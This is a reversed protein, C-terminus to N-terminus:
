QTPQRYFSFSLLVSILFGATGSNLVHGSTLSLLIVLMVTFITYKTYACNNHLSKYISLLLLGYCLIVSIVGYAMLFDIIDIEVLKDGTIYKFWTIGRGCLMDLISYNNLYAKIAEEAWVNRQSFLLTIIDFKNFFFYIRDMINTLHLVYYILAVCCVSLIAYITVSYKLLKRSIYPYKLTSLLKLSPYSVFILFSSLISVKSTILASMALMAMGSLSFMVLKNEELLKMQVIAGGIVLAASIENGAYIFGRTGIAVDNGFAYMPYGFGFGGLTLNIIIFIYSYTAVRFLLNVNYNRLVFVFFRYYILIAIYKILWDLGSSIAAIDGQSLLGYVFYFVFLSSILLVFTLDRNKLLFLIVLLMVFSKYIISISPLDNRLLVGNLMDVPIFFCFLWIIVSSFAPMPLNTLFNYIKHGLVNSIIKDNLESNTDKHQIM